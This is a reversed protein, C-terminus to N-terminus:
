ASKLFCDSVSENLLISKPSDNEEKMQRQLSDLENDIAQLETKRGQSALLDRCSLLLNGYWLLYMSSAEHASAKGELIRQCAPWISELERIGSFLITVMSKFNLELAQSPWSYQYMLWGNQPNTLFSGLSSQLSLNTLFEYLERQCDSGAALILEQAPFDLRTQITSFEVGFAVTLHLPMKLALTPMGFDIRFEQEDQSSSIALQELFMTIKHMLVEQIEPAKNAQSSNTKSEKRSQDMAIVVKM